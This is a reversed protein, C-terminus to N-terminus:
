TSSLRGIVERAADAYTSGHPVALQDCYSVPLPDDCLTLRSLLDMTGPGAPIAGTPSADLLATFEATDGPEIEDREEAM